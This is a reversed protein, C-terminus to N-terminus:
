SPSSLCARGARFEAPPLNGPALEAKPGAPEAKGRRCLLLREINPAVQQPPLIRSGLSFTDRTWLAPGRRSGRGSRAAGCAGSFGRRYLARPVTRRILVGNRSKSLIIKLAAELLNNPFFFVPITLLHVFQAAFPAARCPACVASQEASLDSCFFSPLQTYTDQAQLLKGWM